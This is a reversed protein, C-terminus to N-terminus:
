LAFSEPTWARRALVRPAAEIGRLVSQTSVHLTRAVRALPFGYHRVAILSVIARAQVVDRRIGNGTIEAQSLACRLAVADLLRLLHEDGVHPAAPAPCHDRLTRLIFADSGLVRKDAAWAERGRRLASLVRRGLARLLTGGALEPRRGHSLGDRVFARYAQRAPGRVTGFLTLVRETDQWSHDANGLVCAHGTWPYADLDELRPVMAGRVPNLHIYRVLELLYREEEVLMSKFRNQFLHGCRRHRRNFASAYGGLLRRLVKSLPVKGTRLLLHLHNPMLSWAFLETATKQMLAGLREVLAARDTDDQFIAGREIGRAMVHHLAGPFDLRPRRPM